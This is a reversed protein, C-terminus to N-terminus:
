LQRSPVTLDFTPLWLGLNVLSFGLLARPQIHGGGLLVNLSLHASPLRDPGLLWPAARLVVFRRQNDM